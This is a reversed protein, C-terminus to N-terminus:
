PFLLFYDMGYVFNISEVYSADSQGKNFTEREAQVQYDSKVALNNNAFHQYDKYHLDLSM